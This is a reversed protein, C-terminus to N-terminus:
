PCTKAAVRKAPALGFHGTLVQEATELAGEIWGHRRSLSEGCIHLDVGALPKCAKAEGDRYGHRWLHFAAVDPKGTWPQFCAGLPEPARVDFEREYLDALLRHARRTFSHDAPLPEGAPLGRAMDDWFSAKAGETYFVAAVPGTPAGVRRATEAVHSISGLLSDTRSRGTVFGCAKWWPGPYWIAGTAVSWAEVSHLLERIQQRSGLGDVAAIKGIPMALVVRTGAVNLRSGDTREFRLQNEEVDMAALRHGTLIRCGAAILRKELAQTLSSAGGGLLVASSGFFEKDFWTLIARADLPLDFFSYCLRDCLFRIEEESLVTRMVQELPLRDIDSTLADGGTWEGNGTYRALVRRLLRRPNRRQVNWGVDYDFPRRFFSRRIEAESRWRGRLCVLDTPNGALAPAGALDFSSLLGATLPHDTRINHAGLDVPVCGAPALTFIRGGIRDAAEFLTIENAPYGSSILRWAAYLGAIGGGVVSVSTAAKGVLAFGTRKM